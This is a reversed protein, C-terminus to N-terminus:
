KLRYVGEAKRMIRKLPLKIAGSRSMQITWGDGLYVAIHNAVPGEEYLRILDFPMLNEIREWGEVRKWFKHYNEAMLRGQAEPKYPYDYDPLDFGVARYIELVLGYCDLGTKADRGRYAYPTEMLYDFRNIGETKM